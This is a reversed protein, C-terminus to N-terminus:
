LIRFVAAGPEVLVAEAAVTENNDLRLKREAPNFQIGRRQYVVVFDGPRLTAARPLANNFPDALVNHPYFHYAGRGRFYPADALVFVRAPPAPMRARAREVFQFLPGDEAVQHRERWDKGGFQARTEGVQRALNWVWQMDLLMWAGVFLAGVVLPWAAIQRDRKKWALALWVIAALAGAAVLLLPLPLAQVDAGGTITNISANSWREFATWERGRDALVELAGAPKVSVGEIRVPAPLPGRVTLAIGKIRGAWDPHGALTVPLLRGAFVAVPISHIKSPAYDTRWLFRVDAQDPFNTGSWAVVPYDSSRFDTNASVLALGSPDAATIVVGDRETAGTGKALALERASFDKPAADPFWRGPVALAVYAILGAVLVLVFIFLASRTAARSDAVVSAASTGDAM